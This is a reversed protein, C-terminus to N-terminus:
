FLHKDVNHLSAYEDVYISFDSIINAISSVNVGDSEIRVWEPLNYDVATTVNPAQIEYPITGTKEPKHDPKNVVNLVTLACIFITLNTIIM